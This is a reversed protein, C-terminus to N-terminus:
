NRNRKRCLENLAAKIMGLGLNLRKDIFAAKLGNIITEEEKQDDAMSTNAGLSICCAILMLDNEKIPKKDIEDLRACLLDYEFKYKLFEDKPLTKAKQIRSILKSREDM